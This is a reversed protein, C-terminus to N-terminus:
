VILDNFQTNFLTVKALVYWFLWAFYAVCFPFALSIPRLVYISRINFFEFWQSPSMKQM